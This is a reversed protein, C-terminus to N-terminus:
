LHNRYLRHNRRPRCLVASYVNVFTAIGLFPGVSLRFNDVYFIAAATLGACGLACLTYITSPAIRERNCCNRRDPAPKSKGCNRASCCLGIAMFFVVIAGIAFIIGSVSALTMFYDSTLSIDSASFMNTVSGKFNWRLMNHIQELAQPVTYLTPMSPYRSFKVAVEATSSWIWRILCSDPLINSLINTLV